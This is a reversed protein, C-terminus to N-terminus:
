DGIRLCRVQITSTAKTARGVSGRSFEVYWGLSSDSADSTSSWYSSGLTDPFYITSITPGPHAISSDILTPLELVSPLYWDTYGGLSLSNCYDWAQQWTYKGPASAQQWMFGSVNDKIIGNGLDTYSHPNCTRESPDGTDPVSYAFAGNICMLLFCISLISISKRFQM